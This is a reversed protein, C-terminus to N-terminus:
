YDKYIIKRKVSYMYKELLDSKTKQRLELQNLNKRRNMTNLKRKKKDRIYIPM